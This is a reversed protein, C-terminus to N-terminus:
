LVRRGHGFVIVKARWVTVVGVGIEKAIATNTKWPSAMVAKIATRQKSFISRNSNLTQESRTSWKCNRKSYNGDNNKRDLSKGIPRKGMDEFFCTFGHKGKEGFRWRNCVTIGRGGYRDFHPTNDNYCRNIMGVWSKYERMNHGRRAAGHIPLRGRALIERHLCGCSHTAGRRLDAGNAEIIEGCDCRCQWRFGRHPICRARQIVLLRGFRQGRMEKILQGM